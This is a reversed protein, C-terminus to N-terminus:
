SFHSNFGPGLALYITMGILYVLIFMSMLLAAYCIRVTVYLTKEIAFLISRVILDAITLLLALTILTIEAGQDVFSKTFIANSYKDHKNNFRIM